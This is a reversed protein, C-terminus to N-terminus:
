GRMCEKYEACCRTLCRMYGKDTPNGCTKYCFYKRISCWIDRLVGREGLLVTEEEGAESQPNSGEGVVRQLFAPQKSFARDASVQQITHALEHALLQQGAKTGPNYQGAGFVVDWGVTYAQANVVRATEATQSDTHLRVQSFDYGFRPEFFERETESLPQGVGRIANIRSELDLTAEANERSIEKTQLNERSVPQPEPMQMVEDAVRDAEQEYIDGPENIKLKTQIMGAGNSHVSVRSFDHGFRPVMTTGAQDVSSRQLTLKEKDRGSDEVLGPTNCLTSKRQLLGTQAPTFNQVPSAQVKTQMETSM